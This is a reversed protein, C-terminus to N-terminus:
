RQQRLRRRLSRLLFRSTALPLMMTRPERRQRRITTTLVPFDADLHAYALHAGANVLDQTVVIHDLIQASGDENYSWRQNAPLLLALDTLPPTVLGAVGPQVM